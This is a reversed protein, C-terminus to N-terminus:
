RTITWEFGTRITHVTSHAHQSSVRLTNEFLSILNNIPLHLRYGNHKEREHTRWMVCITLVVFVCATCSVLTLCHSLSLPLPLPRNFDNMFHPAWVFYTLTRTHTRTYLLLWVAVARALFLIYQSCILASTSMTYNDHKEIWCINTCAIRIVSSIQAQIRAHAHTIKERARGSTQLENVSVFIVTMTENMSRKEMLHDRYQKSLVIKQKRLIAKWVTGVKLIKFQDLLILLPFFLTITDLIVITVSDFLMHMLLKLDVFLNSISCMGLEILHM